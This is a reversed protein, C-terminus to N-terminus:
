RGDGAVQLVGDHAHPHLREILQERRQRAQHAIERQFEVFPDLDLSEARLGFQVTLNNLEHARRQGMNDAVGGVVANFGGGLAGGGALGFGAHDADGGGIVGTM